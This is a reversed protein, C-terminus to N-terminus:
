PTPWLSINDGNGNEMENKRSATTTREVVVTIVNRSVVIMGCSTHAQARRRPSFRLGSKEHSLVEIRPDDPCLDLTMANEMGKM